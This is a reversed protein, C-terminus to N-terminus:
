RDLDGVTACATLLRDLHRTPAQGRVVLATMLALGPAALPRFAVLDARLQRAHSAYVVTWLPTGAGIMALTDSLSGAPKGPVPEFGASHCAQVVLDVLAPHNRRATLRLPLGALDALAVEDAAALPHTAPIAVLLQDRWVPIARLQPNESTGRVFAADLEGSVVQELRQATPASVLEVRVGALAALVHDLHAGLGTSTGLRLITAEASAFGAVALRAREVAALVALAEPLFHEGAATLRVHRPSRDFLDVALERELRRLQQSVASQVIHLREAARGFHREEAVMVFYRLQRLEM